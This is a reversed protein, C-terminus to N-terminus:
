EIVKASFCSSFYSPRWINNFVLLLPLEKRDLVGRNGWSRKRKSPEGAGGTKGESLM